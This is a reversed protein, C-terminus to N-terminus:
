VKTGIRVIAGRVSRVLPAAGDDPRKPQRRQRPMALQLLQLENASHYINLWIQDFSEESRMAKLTSVVSM